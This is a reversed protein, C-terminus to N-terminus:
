CDFGASLVSSNLPHIKNPSSGALSLRRKLLKLPSRTEKKSPFLVRIPTSTDFKHILQRVKSGSPQPPKGNVSGKVQSSTPASSSTPAPMAAADGSKPYQPLKSKSIFAKQRTLRRLGGTKAPSFGVSFAISERRPDQPVPLPLDFIVHFLCHCILFLVSNALCILFWISCAHCILISCALCILFLNTCASCILCFLCPLDFNVHYLCPLAFVFHFLCSLDFIVLFM